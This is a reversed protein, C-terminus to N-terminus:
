EFAITVAPPVALRDEEHNAKPPVALHRADLPRWTPDIVYGQKPKATAALAWTGVVAPLAVSALFAIVLAPMVGLLSFVGIAALSGQAAFPTILDLGTTLMLGYGVTLWLVGNALAGGALQGAFGPFFSSKYFRSVSDYVFTGALASVSADLLTAITFGGVLLIWSGFPGLAPGAAAVVGLVFFGPIAMLVRSALSTIASAGAAYWFVRVDDSFSSVRRLKPVAAGGAAAALADEPQAVALPSLRLGDVASRPADLQFHATSSAHFVSGLSVTALSSAFSLRPPDIDDALAAGPLLLGAMVLTTLAIRM